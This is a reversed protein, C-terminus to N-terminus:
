SEAAYDWVGIKAYLLKHCMNVISNIPYKHPLYIGVRLYVHCRSWLDTTMTSRDNEALGLGSRLTTIPDFIPGDSGSGSAANGDYKKDENRNNDGDNHNTMANYIKECFLGLM